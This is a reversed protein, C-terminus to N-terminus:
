CSSFNSHLIASINQTDSSLDILGKEHTIVSYEAPPRARDITVIM